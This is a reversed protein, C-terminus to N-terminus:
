LTSSFCNRETGKENRTKANRSNGFYSDITKHKFPIIHFIYYTKKGNFDTNPFNYKFGDFFFKGLTSHKKILRIENPKLGLDKVIQYDTIDILSEMKDVRHVRLKFEDYFTPSPTKFNLQIRALGIKIKYSRITTTKLRAKIREIPNIIIFQDTNPIPCKYMKRFLINVIKNWM